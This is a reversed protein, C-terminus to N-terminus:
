LDSVFTSGTTGAGIIVFSYKRKPMLSQTASPRSTPNIVADAKYTVPLSAETAAAADM